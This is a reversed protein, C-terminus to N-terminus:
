AHRLSIWVRNEDHSAIKEGRELPVQFDSQSFFNLTPGYRREGTVFM